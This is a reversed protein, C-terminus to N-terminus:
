NGQYMCSIYMKHLQISLNFEPLSSFDICANRSIAKLNLDQIFQNHRRSKVSFNKESSVCTCFSILSVAATSKMKIEIDLLHLIATERIRLNQHFIEAM